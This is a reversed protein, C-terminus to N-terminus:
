EPLDDDPVDDLEQGAEWAELWEALRRPPGPQDAFMGHFNQIKYPAGKFGRAPYWALDPDCGKWQVQYQLKGRSIRSALIREVEWEREDITNCPVKTPLHNRSSPRSERSRGVNRPGQTSSVDALRHPEEDLSFRFPPAEPKNLSNPEFSFFYSTGSARTEITLIAHGFIDQSSCPEASRESATGRLPNESRGSSAHNAVKEAPRNARRGRKALRPSEEADSCNPRRVPIADLGPHCDRPRQNRQEVIRTQAVEFARRRPPKTIASPLELNPAVEAVQHNLAEESEASRSQDSESCLQNEASSEIVAISLSQRDNPLLECESIAPSSVHQKSQQPVNGLINQNNEQGGIPRDTSENYPVHRSPTSCFNMDHNDNPPSSCSQNIVNSEDSTSPQIDLSHDQEQLDPSPTCLHGNLGTPIESRERATTTGFPDPADTRQRPNSLCSTLSFTSADFAESSAERHTRQSDMASFTVQSAAKAFKSLEVDFSNLRALSCPSDREHPRDFLPIGNGRPLTTGAATGPLFSLCPSIPQVSLAPEPQLSKSPQPRYFEINELDVPARRPAPQTM